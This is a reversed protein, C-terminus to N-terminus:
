FGVEAGSVENCSDGPGALDFVVYLRVNAYLLNSFFYVCRTLSLIDRGWM